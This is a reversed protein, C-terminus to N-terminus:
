IKHVNFNLVTIRIKREYLFMLIVYALHPVPGSFKKNQDSVCFKEFVDVPVSRPCGAVDSVSSGTAITLRNFAILFLEPSGLESTAPKSLPGRIM